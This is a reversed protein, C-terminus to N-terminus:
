GELPHVSTHLQAPSHPYQRAFARTIRRCIMRSDEYNAQPLLLIFQSVSCRAAVDGRRLQTPILEQLNAAARELSHRALEGGDQGAVSILALHVADGSRPSARVVSHYIARFMDYECFLAGGGADPERLQELITEPPITRGNVTRVAERYLARLEESPLAGFQALFLESMEEYASAAGRQDGLRLLATMLHRYLEEQYPEREVAARCVQAAEQWRGQEELPPLVDLVTQVYLAHLRASIPVVWPEASLKALFDGQYLSLARLRRSLSDEGAADQCLTTFEDVDLAAPLNPNWIYGGEQRVILERGLGGGLQELCARARHFTTKLANAPNSSKEGGSWLLRTLEESPVPRSRCCLLYALLLWVKRSRDASDRIESAGCRISFEGLMQVRLSIAEM